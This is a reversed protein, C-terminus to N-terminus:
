VPLAVTSPFGCVCSLAVATARRLRIGLCYQMKANPSVPMANPVFPAGIASRLPQLMMDFASAVAVAVVQPRNRRRRLCFSPQPSTWREFTGFSASGYAAKADFM